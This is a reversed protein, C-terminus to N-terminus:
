LIHLVSKPSVYSIDLDVDNCLRDLISQIGVHYKCRDPVILVYRNSSISILQSNFFYTSIADDVSLEDSM